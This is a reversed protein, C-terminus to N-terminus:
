ELIKRFQDAHDETEKLINEVLLRTTPDGEEAATRIIDKCTEISEHEAKLDAALMDKLSGGLIIELPTTTPTGGLYFIRDAFIESHKMEQMAIDKLVEGVSQSERGKAMVHHWMYQITARLDMALAKNLGDLLKRSAMNPEM